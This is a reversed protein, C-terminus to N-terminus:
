TYSTARTMYVGNMEIEQLEPGYTTGGYYRSTMEGDEERDLEKGKGHGIPQWDMNKNEM